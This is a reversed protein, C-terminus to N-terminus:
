VNADKLSKKPGMQKNKAHLQIKEINQNHVPKDAAKILFVQLNVKQYWRSFQHVQTGGQTAYNARAITINIQVNHFSVFLLDIHQPKLIYRKNQPLTGVVTQKLHAQPDTDGQLNDLCFVSFMWQLNKFIRKPTVLLLELQAKGESNPRYERIM